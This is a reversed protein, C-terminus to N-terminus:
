EDSPIGLQWHPLKRGTWTGPYRPVTYMHVTVRAVHKLPSFIAEWRPHGRARTGPYGPVAHAQQSETHAWNM